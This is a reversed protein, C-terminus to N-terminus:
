DIYITETKIVAGEINIKFEPDFSESKDQKKQVTTTQKAEVKKNESIGGIVFLSVIGVIIFLLAVTAFLAEGAM